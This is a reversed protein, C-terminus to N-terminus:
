VRGLQQLIDDLFRRHNALRPVKHQGGQKGRRRMWARFFGPPVVTLEHQRIAYDNGRKAQYNYNVRQLALDLDRNFAPLDDPSKAFEVVWHHRGAARLDIYVPAVTFDQISAGHQACAELLATEAESRLLDEGFANIFEQTRGLIRIRYPRLETFEILDGIPYRYLGALTTILMVYTEGLTM